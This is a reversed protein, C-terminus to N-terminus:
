GSPNESWGLAAFFCSISLLCRYMSTCVPVYLLDLLAVAKDHLKLLREEPSRSQQFAINWDMCQILVDVVDSSPDACRLQKELGNVFKSIAEEVDDADPRDFFEEDELPVDPDGQDHAQESDSGHSLLVIDRMVADRHKGQFGKSRYIPVLSTCVMYYDHM